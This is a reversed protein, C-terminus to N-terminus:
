YAPAEVARDLARLLEQAQAQLRLERAPDVPKALAACVLLTAGILAPWRSAPRPPAFQTTLPRVPPPDVAPLPRVIETVLAADDRCLTAM